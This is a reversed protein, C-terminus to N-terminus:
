YCVAERANQVTEHLVSAADTETAAASTFRRRRSVRQARSLVFSIVRRQYIYMDAVQEPGDGAAQTLAMRRPRYAGPPRGGRRLRRRIPM